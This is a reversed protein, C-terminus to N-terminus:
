LSDDYHFRRKLINDINKYEWYPIILLRIGEKKCFDKKIRDNEKQVLLRSEGGFYTVQFYHQFGNFEICMPAGDNLYFDFSLPKKNRCDDFRKQKLYSIGLEDLTESISKEGKSMPRVCEPCRQGDKFSNMRVHWVHENPCRIQIKTKNNAYESSLLSYGYKELEDLIDVKSLRTSNGRTEGYCKGCRIGRVFDGWRLKFVHSNPCLIRLKESGKNYRPSLVEYDHSIAYKKVNDINWKTYPGCEPCRQGKNIFNHWAMKFLHGKPCAFDYRDISKTYSSIDIKYGLKEAQHNILEVSWATANSCLKCGSGQLFRMWTVFFKLHEKNPCSLEMTARSNIYYDDLVEYGWSEALCIVEDIKWPANKIHGCIEFIEDSSKKPLM